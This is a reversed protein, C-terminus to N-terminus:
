AVNISMRKGDDTRSAGEAIRAPSCARYATDSLSFLWEPLDVSVLPPNVLHTARTDALVTM